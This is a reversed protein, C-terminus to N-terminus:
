NIKSIILERLSFVHQKLVEAYLPLHDAARPLDGFTLQLNRINAANLPGIQRLFRPFDFAEGEDSDYSYERGM